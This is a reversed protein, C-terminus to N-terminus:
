VGIVSEHKCLENGVPAVQTNEGAVMVGLLLATENLRATVTDEAEADEEHCRGAAGCCGAVQSAVCIQKPRVGSAPIKSSAPVRRLCCVCQIPRAVRHRNKSASTAQPPPLM